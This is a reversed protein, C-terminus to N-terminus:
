SVYGTFKPIFPPVMTLQKLNRLFDAFPHTTQPPKESAPGSNEGPNDFRRSDALNMLAKCVVERPCEHEAPENLRPLTALHSYLYNRRQDTEAADDRMCLRRLLRQGLDHALHTDAVEARNLM